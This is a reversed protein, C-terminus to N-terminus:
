IIRSQFVRGRGIAASEGMASIVSEANQRATRAAVGETAPALEEEEGALITRAYSALVFVGASFRTGCCSSSSNAAPVGRMTNRSITEESATTRPLSLVSPM